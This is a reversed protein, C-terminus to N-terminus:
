GGRPDGPHSLHFLDELGQLIVGSQLSIMMGMLHLDIMQTGLEVIGRSTTEQSHLTNTRREQHERAERAVVLGEQAEPLDKAVQHSEQHGKSTERVELEGTEKNEVMAMPM